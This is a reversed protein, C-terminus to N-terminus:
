WSFEIGAFLPPDSGTTIPGIVWLWGLPLAEHGGGGHTVCRRPGVMHRSMGSHQLGRSRVHARPSFVRWNANGACALGGPAEWFLVSPLPPWVGVGSASTCCTRSSVKDKLQSQGGETGLKAVAILLQLRVWGAIFCLLVPSLLTQAPESVTTM